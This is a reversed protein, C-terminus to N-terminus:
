VHTKWVSKVIRFSKIEDNYPRMSKRRLISIFILTQILKKLFEYCSKKRSRRKSQIIYNLLFMLASDKTKLSIRGTSHKAGIQVRYLENRYRAENLSLKDVTNNQFLYPVTEFGLIVDSVSHM